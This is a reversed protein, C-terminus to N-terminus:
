KATEFASLCSYCLWKVRFTFVLNNHRTEIVPLALASDEKSHLV